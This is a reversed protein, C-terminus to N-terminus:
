DAKALEPSLDRYACRWHVLAQAGGPQHVAEVRGIVVAHTNWEMITDISCDVAALADSLLPAGTVLTIWENGNFRAAGSVNGRGAFREAVDRHNAALFNVGFVRTERMAQLTASTRNICVVLSPPDMSLSSVSTATLGARAEGQGTTIVSVGSALHRMASRFGDCAAIDAEQRPLFRDHANV